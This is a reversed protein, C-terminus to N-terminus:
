CLSHGDLQWDAPVSLGLFALVSPTVDAETAGDLSTGGCFRQAGTNAMALFAGREQPTDGGHWFFGGGHDSVVVVLWDEQAISPRSALTNLIRDIMSDATAIAARYDDNDARYCCEHGTHDVDDLQIFTVDPPTAQALSAKVASMVEADTGFEQRTDADSLLWENIPAWHVFSATTLQPAIAGLRSFLGPYSDLNNLDWLFNSWVSHKPAWVGTLITSWGPASETFQRHNGAVLNPTWAGSNIVRDIGPTPVTAVADGLLGDVGLILVRRTSGPEAPQETLAGPSRPLQPTATCAAIMLSLAVLM